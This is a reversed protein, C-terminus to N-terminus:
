KGGPAAGPQGGPQGAPNGAPQKAGRPKKSMSELSPPGGLMEHMKKEDPQSPSSGCGAGMAGILLLSALGAWLNVPKIM